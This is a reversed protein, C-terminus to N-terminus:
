TDKVQLNRQKAEWEPLELTDIFDGEYYETAEEGYVEAVHM